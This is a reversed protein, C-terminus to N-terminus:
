GEKTVKLRSCKRLREKVKMVVKSSLLGTIKYVTGQDSGYM